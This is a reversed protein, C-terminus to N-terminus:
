VNFHQVIPFRRGATFAKRTVRLEPPSQRRKYENRHIRKVLELVLPLDIAYKNAIEEPSLHNEIYGEIVRDIVVYPPLSDSDKQGAKLEATPERQLIAEPILIQDRNMWKALAYVYAKSVDALVALGGCMDGYLTQYGMAMESKNGTSLVIYGFKNSFAMLLMGRIRSQLNEETVDEKKEKFHPELEKLYAEFPKEISIEKLEIGLNKALSTADIKSQSATYRSPMSLALVNEKGLANVAIVAVVASDIGGSLGLIAKKLGLKSFYDRLGMVLASHLDEIADYSPILAIDSLDTDIQLVDEEFGLAVAALTGDKQLYFSHGDFLLSDNGGVQNCLLLPCKLTEVTKKGVKLRVDIRDIYYPSSSINIALEPNEKKLDLIPDRLYSSYRVEGAHQWIDECITVAVKKGQLKWIHSKTAPEFYRRESFVDYDPLLSKDQFGLLKGDEFIAATNFLGKEGHSPNKRVTGLIVACGETYPEILKLQSNAAEIFSPLVLLDEPPYGTLAMEPFLILKAGQKKAECINHLIKERNYDLDGVIPNIQCAACKM